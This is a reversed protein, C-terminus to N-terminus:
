KAHRRFFRSDHQPFFRQYLAILDAKSLQRLKRKLSTLRSKLTNLPIHLKKAISPDPLGKGMLQLYQFESETLLSLREREQAAHILEFAIDPQIIHGGRAVLPIAQILLNIGSKRIIADTGADLLQLLLFPNNEITLSICHLQPYHKKLYYILRPGDLGKGGLHFDVLAIDPLTKTLLEFAKEASEAEGLIQINKEKQLFSRIALRSTTDDEILILTFPATM